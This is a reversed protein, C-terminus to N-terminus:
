VTQQTVRTRLPGVSEFALRRATVQLADLKAMRAHQQEMLTNIVNQEKSMLRGTKM